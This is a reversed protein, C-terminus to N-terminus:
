IQHSLIPATTLKHILTDYAKQCEKTWNWITEKKTLQYLPATITAFGEIFKRYYNCLGLFQQLQKVNTPPKREKIASIKDQNM